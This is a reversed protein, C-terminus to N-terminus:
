QEEEPSYDNTIGFLKRVEQPSKGKIMTAVKACALDLLAKIDLFNAAIILDHLSQQDINVYDAFWATTVDTLNCSKLPIEINPPPCSRLHYCFVIIKEMVKKTINPLPIEQELGSDDIIGKIFLSKECIDLDIEMTDGDSLIIRVKSTM